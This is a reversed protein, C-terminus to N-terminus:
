LISLFHCTRTFNRMSWFGIWCVKAICYRWITLLLEGASTMVDHQFERFLFFGPQQRKYQPFFSFHLITDLFILTTSKTDTTNNLFPKIAYSLLFGEWFLDQIDFLMLIYGMFFLGLYKSRHLAVAYACFYCSCFKHWMNWSFHYPFHFCM